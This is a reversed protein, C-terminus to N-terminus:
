IKGAVFDAHLDRGSAVSSTSQRERNGQHTSVNPTRRQVRKVAPPAILNAKTEIRTEDVSGDKIFKTLDLDELVADLDEEPLRDAIIAKFKARVATPLNEAEIEQRIEEKLADKDVAEPRADLQEQLNKANAEHKRSKHKWYAAAQKDDMEAIPTEDPFGHENNPKPMKNETDSPTGMDPKVIVDSAVVGYQSWWQDIADFVESNKEPNRGREEVRKKATEADTELVVTEVAGLSEALTKRKEADAVCRIVWADGPWHKAVIERSDRIAKLADLELEPFEERLADFDVIFDGDKGHKEIYKNKGAGPPGTILRVPM